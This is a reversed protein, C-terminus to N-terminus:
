RKGRTFLHISILLHFCSTPSPHGSSGWSAASLEVTPATHCRRADCGSQLSPEMVEMERHIALAEFHGGGGLAFSTGLDQSWSDMLRCEVHSWPITLLRGNGGGYVQFFSGPFYLVQGDCVPVPRLYAEARATFVRVCGMRFRRRQPDLGLGQRWDGAPSSAEPCFHHCRHSRNQLECPLGSPAGLKSSQDQGSYVNRDSAKRHVM